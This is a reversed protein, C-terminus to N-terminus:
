GSPKMDHLQHSFKLITLDRVIKGELKFKLKFVWKFDIAKKEGPLKILEWTQNKEISKLEDIM